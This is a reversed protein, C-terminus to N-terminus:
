DATLESILNSYQTITMTMTTTFLKRRSMCGHELPNKPDEGGGEEMLLIHTWAEKNMCWNM